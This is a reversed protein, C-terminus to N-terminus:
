LARNIPRRAFRLAAVETVRTASIPREAGDNRLGVGCSNRKVGAYRGDTGFSPALTPIIAPAIGHPLGRKLIFRGDGCTISHARHKVNTPRM